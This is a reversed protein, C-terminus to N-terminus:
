RRKRFLFVPGGRVYVPKSLVYIMKSHIYLRSRNFLVATWAEIFRLAENLRLQYVGEDQAGYDQLPSVRYHKLFLVAWGKLILTRNNGLLHRFLLM